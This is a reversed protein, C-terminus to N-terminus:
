ASVEQRIPRPLGLSDRLTPGTAPVFIGREELIPLVDNVFRDAQDPLYPFSVNFGDIAGSSFWREIRDAVTTPSGTVSGGSAFRVALQRLTLNEARAVALIGERRSLSRNSSTLTEPLPADLDADSLDDDGLNDQILRRLVDDHILTGLRELIQQAEEDTDAVIPSLIPWVRVDGPDRGAQVLADDLQERYLIAAELTPPATFIVEGYQAAFARGVESAGAQFIVPHGQPPRSVNLPGDVRFHTGRHDLKQRGEQRFYIGSEKDRIVADDAYSDWLGTVIDVFEAAREYRETHGYHEDRGFNAAELPVVSTVVNWGARGGSIHDLSAFKRAITYPENYSTTATGVLGIRDTVASLASLLTLPEFFDSRATRHLSDLQHGWISVVDAIFITSFGGRELTQAVEAYFSFDLQGDPRAGPYRWGAIHGGSGYLLAGFQLTTPRPM